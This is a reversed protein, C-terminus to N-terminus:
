SVRAFAQHDFQGLACATVVRGIRGRDLIM